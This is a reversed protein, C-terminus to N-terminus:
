PTTGIPNLGFTDSNSANETADMTNEEVVPTAPKTYVMDWVKNGDLSQGPAELNLVSVPHFNATTKVNLASYGKLKKTSKYTGNVYKYDYTYQPERGGNYNVATDSIEGTTLNITLDTQVKALIKKFEVVGAKFSKRQAAIEKATARPNTKKYESIVLNELASYWKSNFTVRVTQIKEGANNSTIKGVRSISIPSGLKKTTALYWNQVTKLEEESLISNNNSGLEFDSMGRGLEQALEESNPLKIWKGIIPSLDVNVKELYKAVEPSLKTIRVFNSDVGLALVEFGFPEVLNLNNPDLDDSFTKPKTPDVKETAVIKPISLAFRAAGPVGGAKYKVDYNYQVELHGAATAVNKLDKESYDVVTTIVGGHNLPKNLVLRELSNKIATAPTFLPNAALSISPAILAAALALGTVFKKM